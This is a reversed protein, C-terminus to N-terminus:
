NHQEPIQRAVCFQQEDRLSSLDYGTVSRLWDV